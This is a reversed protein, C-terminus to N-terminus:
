FFRMQEGPRQFYETSLNMKAQNLGQKRCHIRFLSSIQSAMDGSGHMRSSFDADYLKGNRLLKLRALVKSKRDPYHAELWELFLPKVSWPLRVVTYGAFRAGAQAAAELIAPTEHDTLGPIIPATMVGVPIGAQALEEIARLRQQPRSTRPELIGCLKPDLSTVSVFCAAANQSAMEGIIDIDRTVLHNKSITVFPNKFERLVDLCRRTLRLRKEVPQYCDTVGSLSIV